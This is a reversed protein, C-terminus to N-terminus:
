KSMEKEQSPKLLPVRIAESRLLWELAFRHTM